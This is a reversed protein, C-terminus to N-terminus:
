SAEFGFVVPLLRKRRSLEWPLSSSLFNESVAFLRRCLRWRLWVHPVACRASASSLFHRGFTYWARCSSRKTLRKKDRSNVAAMTGVRRFGVKEQEAGRWRVSVLNTADLCTIANVIFINGIGQSCTPCMIIPWNQPNEKHSTPKGTNRNYDTWHFCPPSLSLPSLALLFRCNPKYSWLQLICDALGIACAVDACPVFM